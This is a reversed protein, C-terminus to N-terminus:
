NLKDEGSFVPLKELKWKKLGGNLMKVNTAGFYKLLFFARPAFLVGSDLNSDYVVIEDDKRVGLAKMQQSFYDASPIM